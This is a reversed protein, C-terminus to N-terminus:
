ARRAAPVRARAHTRRLGQRLAAIGHRLETWRAAELAALAEIQTMEWAPLAEILREVGADTAAVIRLRRDAANQLKLWGRELLPRIVRPVTTTDMGLQEALRGISLPGMRALTMVTTFQGATLGCPALREDFRAGVIRATRAIHRHVCHIPDHQMAALTRDLRQFASTKESAPVQMRANRRQSTRCELLSIQMHM